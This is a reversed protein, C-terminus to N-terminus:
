VWEQSLIEGRIGIQVSKIPIKRRAESVAKQALNLLGRCCPVEMTVVTLTNIGAEDVLLKLKELYIEQGEDLKPCAIILNKDKIFDRHFEGYSFGACDASLVVDSGQFHPAAPSILHLQVPWHSLESPKSEGSDARNEKEGEKWTMTKGGPCGCASKSSSESEAPIPINRKKLFEVATQHYEHQGHGKLHTLHARITGNGKKVINEMVKREDYTQAEREEVTIAGEPCHGLCAGLGDCLYDGILRAKGDIIQIAGEPCTPICLACGTCKDEDITIISRKM